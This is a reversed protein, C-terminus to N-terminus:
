FRNIATEHIMYGTDEVGEFEPEMLEIPDETEEIVFHRRMISFDFSTELGIANDVDSMPIYRILLREKSFSFMEEQIIRDVLFPIENEYLGSERFRDCIFNLIGEKTYTINDINLNGDQNQVVWGYYSTGYHFDGEYYLFEYEKGEFNINGDTDIYIDEWTIKNGLPVEPITKTVGGEIEITVDTIIPSNVYFYIEPSPSYTFSFLIGALVVTIAVMLIVAIVPSVAISDLPGCKKSILQKMGIM